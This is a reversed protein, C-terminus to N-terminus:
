PAAGFNMPRRTRLHAPTLYRLAARVCEEVPADLMSACLKTGRKLDDARFGLERLCLTVDHLKAQEAAGAAEVRAEEAVRAEAARTEAAKRAQKALRQEEAARAKAAKDAERAVRAEAAARRAEGDREWVARKVPRPCLAWGGDLSEWEGAAPRDGRM